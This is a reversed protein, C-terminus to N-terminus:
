VIENLVHAEMFDSSSGRIDIRTRFADIVWEIISHIMGENMPHIVQDMAGCVGLMTTTTM